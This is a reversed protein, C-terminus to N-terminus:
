NLVKDCKMIQTFGSVSANKAMCTVNEYQRFSDCASRFQSMSNAKIASNIRNWGDVFGKGCYTVGDSGTYSGGETGGGGCGAFLFLIFLLLFIKKLCYAM